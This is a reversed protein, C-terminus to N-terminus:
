VQAPYYPKEMTEATHRQNHQIDKIQNKDQNEWHHITIQSNVSYVPCIWGESPQKPNPYKWPLLFSGPCNQEVENSHSFVPGIDTVNIKINHENSTIDIVSPLPCSTLVTDRQCDLSVLVICLHGNSPHIELAYVKQLISQKCTDLIDTLEALANTSALTLLDSM